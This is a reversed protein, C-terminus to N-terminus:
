TAPAARGPPASGHPSGCPNTASTCTRCTAFVPDSVTTKRCACPSADPSETVGRAAPVVRPVVGEVPVAAASGATDGVALGDALVERDTDVVVDDVVGRVDLGTLVVGDLEVLVVGDLEVLVM